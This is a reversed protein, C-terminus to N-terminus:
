LNIKYAFIQSKIEMQKANQHVISPLSLLSFPLSTAVFYVNLEASMKSFQINRLILDKRM